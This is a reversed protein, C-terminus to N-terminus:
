NLEQKRKELKLIEGNIDLSSNTSKYGDISYTGNRLLMIVLEKNENYTLMGLQYNFVLGNKLNVEDLKVGRTSYDNFNDLKQSVNITTLEKLRDYESQQELFVGRYFMLLQKIDWSDNFAAFHATDLIFVKEVPVEFYFVKGRQKFHIEIEMKHTQFRQIIIKDEQFQAFEKLNLENEPYFPLVKFTWFGEENSIKFSDENLSLKFKEGSSTTVLLEVGMVTDCFIDKAIPEVRIQSIGFIRKFAFRAAAFVFQYQIPILNTIIGDSYTVAVKSSSVTYKLEM